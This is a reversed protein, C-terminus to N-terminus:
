GCIKAFTGVQIDLHEGRETRFITGNPIKMERAAVRVAKNRSLRIAKLDKGVKKIDFKLKM